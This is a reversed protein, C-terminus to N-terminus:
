IAVSISSHESIDLYRPDEVEHFGGPSYLSQKVKVQKM